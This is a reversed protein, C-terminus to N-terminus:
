RSGVGFIIHTNMSMGMCSIFYKIVRKFIRNGGGRGATWQAWEVEYDLRVQHGMQLVGVLHTVLSGVGVEMEVQLVLLLQHRGLWWVGDMDALLGESAM